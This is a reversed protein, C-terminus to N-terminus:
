FGVKDSISLEHGLQNEMRQIWNLGLDSDGDDDRTSPAVGGSGKLRRSTADTANSSLSEGINNDAGGAIGPFMGWACATWHMVVLMLTMYKLLNWENSKLTVRQKLKNVAKSGKLLRIMKTLKMLKLLRLLRASGDEEGDKSGKALSGFLDWPVTSVFDLAFTTQLYGAAIRRPSTVWTGSADLFATTFNVWIDILFGLDVIRNLVFLGIANSDLYAIEFPSILTTFILLMALVNDFNRNFASTPYRVRNFANVKNMVIEVDNQISNRRTVEEPSIRMDQVAEDGQTEPSIRRLPVLNGSASNVAVAM